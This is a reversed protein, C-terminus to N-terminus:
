TSSKTDPVTKFARGSNMQNIGQPPPVNFGLLLSPPVALLHVLFARSCVKDRVAGTELFHPPHYQCICTRYTTVNIKRVVANRRFFEERNKNKNRVLKWVRFYQNLGVKYFRFMQYSQYSCCVGPNNSAPTGKGRPICKSPNSTSRPYALLATSNIVPFCAQRNAKGLLYEIWKNAASCKTDPLTSTAPKCCSCLLHQGFYSLQSTLLYHGPSRSLSSIKM